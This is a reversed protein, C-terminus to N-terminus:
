HKVVRVFVNPHQEFSGTFLDVDRIFGLDYVVFVCNAYKTQFAVIYDNIEKILRTEAGDNGCFKLDLALGLKDFTFDPTYTKSSYEFRDKERKYPIDAGILLNEFADQVEPERSPKNRIAKRLKYEALNIIKLIASAEPATDKGRYVTAIDDTHEIHELAAQLIGKTIEWQERLDRIAQSEIEMAVQLDLLNTIGTIRAEDTTVFAVAVFAQYYHSERGFVEELLTLTRFIWRTREASFGRQAIFRDIERILATLEIQTAEKTWAPM